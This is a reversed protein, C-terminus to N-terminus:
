RIAVPASHRPQGDIRRPDLGYYKGAGVVRSDSPLWRTLSTSNVIGFAWDWAAVFFLLMMLTGM